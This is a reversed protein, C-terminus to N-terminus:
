IPPTSPGEISVISELGIQGIILVEYPFLPVGVIQDARLKLTAVMSGRTRTYRQAVEAQPSASIFPTIVGDLNDAHVSIENILSRDNKSEVARIVGEVLDNRGYKLATSSMGREPDYQSPAFGRYLTIEEEPHRGLRIEPPINHWNFAYM